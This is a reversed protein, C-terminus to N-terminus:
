SERIILKTGIEAKFSDTEELLGRKHAIRTHLLDVAAAGFAYRPVRITTLAPTLLECLPRDNFGVFSIDDPVKYGSEILAKMVGSTLIDDDSVFATPLDIHDTILTKMQQYCAVESFPLTFIHHQDM